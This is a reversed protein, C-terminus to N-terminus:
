GLAYASLLLISTCTNWSLFKKLIHTFKNQIWHRLSRIGNLRAVYKLQDLLTKVLLYGGRYFYQFKLISYHLSRWKSDSINVTPSPVTMSYCHCKTRRAFIAFRLYSNYICTTVLIGLFKTWSSCPLLNQRASNTM